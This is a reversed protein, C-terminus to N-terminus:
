LTNLDTCGPGARQAAAMVIERDAKFEDSANELEYGSKSVAKIVQEKDNWDTM